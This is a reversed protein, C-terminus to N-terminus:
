HEAAPGPDPKAMAAARQLAQQYQTQYDAILRVHETLSARMGFSGLGLRLDPDSAEKIEAAKKARLMLSKGHRIGSSDKRNLHGARALMRANAATTKEFDALMKEPSEDADEVPRLGALRAVEKWGYDRGVRMLTLDPESYGMEAEGVAGLRTQPFIANLGYSHERNRVNFFLGEYLKVVALELGLQLAIDELSIDRACLFGQLANRLTAYDPLERIGRALAMQYDRNGQLYHYARRTHPDRISAPLPEQARHYGLAIRWGWAPDNLGVACRQHAELPRTKLGYAPSDAPLSQISEYTAQTNM